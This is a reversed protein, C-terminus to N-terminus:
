AKGYAMGAATITFQVPTAGDVLYPLGDLTQKSGGKYEVLKMALLDRLIGNDFGKPTWPKTGYAQRLAYLAQAKRDPLKDGKGNLLV